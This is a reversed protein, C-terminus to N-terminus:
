CTQFKENFTNLGKHELIKYAIRKEKKRSAFCKIYANHLEDSLENLSLLPIDKLFPNDSKYVGQVCSQSYAFKELTARQTTKASLLFTQVEPQKKQKAIRYLYDYCVTQRFAKDNVSETYKFELLIDTAQSDRIGDPLLEKQEETWESHKKRLLLIDAEPPDSMVAVDTLVDIGVPILLEELYKGLLHHWRTKPKTKTKTKTEHEM